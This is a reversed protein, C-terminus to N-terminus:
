SSSITTLIVFHLIFIMMTQAASGAAARGGRLTQEIIISCCKELLTSEIKRVNVCISVPIFPLSTYTNDNQVTREGLFLRLFLLAPTYLFVGTM